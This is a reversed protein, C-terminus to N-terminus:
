IVKDGAMAIVSAVSCAFGDVYVTKKASHRKLQNYIGMGEVLSGGFSNIYVNIQSVNPYKALEDRFYNASTESEIIQDTRWDFYDDVVDGYIYMDLTNPKMSQKIVAMRKKDKM